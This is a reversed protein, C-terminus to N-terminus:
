WRDYDSAFRSARHREASALVAESAPLIEPAPTLRIVELRVACYNIMMLRHLCRPWTSDDMTSDDM